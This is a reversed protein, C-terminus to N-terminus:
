SLGYGRSLQFFDLLNFTLVTLSLLCFRGALSRLHNVCLRYVGWALLIFSLVNPLRLVFPHSGFLRYSLSALASNLVHNNTYAHAVYPRWEGTQVYFFFTSAEDHTIPIHWARLIIVIFAVSFMLMAFLTFNAQVFQRM